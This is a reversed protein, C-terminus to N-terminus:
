NFCWRINIGFSNARFAGEQIIEFQPRWDVGLVLPPENFRYEAGIEATIGFETPDSILTFLGTGVYFNLAETANNESFPNFMYDWLAEIGFGKNFSVSTHLRQSNESFFTAGIGVNSGTTNNVRLGVEQAKLETLTLLFCVIFFYRKM